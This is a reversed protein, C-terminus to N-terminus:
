HQLLLFTARGAKGTMFGEFEDDDDDNIGEDLFQEYLM